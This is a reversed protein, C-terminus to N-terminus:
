LSSSSSSSTSNRWESLFGFLLKNSEAHQQHIQTVLTEFSTTQRNNITVLAATMETVAGDQRNKSSEGVAEVLKHIAGGAYNRAHNIKINKSKNDKEAEAGKM